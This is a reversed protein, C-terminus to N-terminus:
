PLRRYKPRCRELFRSREADSDLERALRQLLEELSAAGATARRVLHAAIPGLQAALEREVDQLKAPDIGGTAQASPAQTSLAQVSPAQAAPAPSVLAAPSAVPTSLAGASPASPTVAPRLMGHLYHCLRDLHATRPPPFADLWHQTSLFYELSRSPLVDEIRFPLIRLQKHVAREVERRVQASSNSHSSFVLVMIRASSIADIIEEAWDASPSVDRPAIWVPIGSSEVHETLEFACERDPESYSVFVEPTM